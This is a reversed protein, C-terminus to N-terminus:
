LLLCLLNLMFRFIKLVEIDLGATSKIQQDFRTKHRKTDAILRKLDEDYKNLWEEVKSTDLVSAIEQMFIHVDPIDCANLEEQFRPM